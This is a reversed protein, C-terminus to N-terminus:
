EAAQKSDEEKIIEKAVAVANTNCKHFFDWGQGIHGTLKMVEAIVNFKEGILEVEQTALALLVIDPKGKALAADKNGDVAIEVDARANLAAKIRDKNTEFYSLFDERLKTSFERIAILENSFQDILAQQEPTYDRKKQEESM